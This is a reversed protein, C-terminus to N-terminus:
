AVIVNIINHERKKEAFRFYCEIYPASLLSARFENPFKCIPTHKHIIFPHTYLSNKMRFIIDIQNISQNCESFIPSVLEYYTHKHSFNEGPSKKEHIYYM